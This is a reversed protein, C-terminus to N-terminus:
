VTREGNEELLERVTRGWTRLNCRPRESVPVPSLGRMREVVVAMKMTIPDDHDTKVTEVDNSDEEGDGNSDDDDDGTM